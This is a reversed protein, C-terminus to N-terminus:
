DPNPMARAYKENSQETNCFTDTSKPMSLVIFLTGDCDPLLNQEQLDYYNDKLEEISVLTTKKDKISAKGMSFDVEFAEAHLQGKYKVWREPVIYRGDRLRSFEFVYFHKSGVAVMPTLIRPDIRKRWKEAQWVERVYGDTIEPYFELHPRILPNAYDQFSFETTSLQVDCHSFEFRQLSTESIM